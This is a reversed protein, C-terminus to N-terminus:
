RGTLPPLRPGNSTANAGIFWGTGANATRIVTPPWLRTYRPHCRHIRHARAARRPRPCAARRLSARDVRDMRAWGARSRPATWDLVGSRAPTRRSMASACGATASAPRPRPRLPLSTRRPPRRRKVLPRIRSRVTPARGLPPSDAQLRKGAHISPREERRERGPGNGPLRQVLRPVASASPYAADMLLWSDKETLSGAAAPVCGTPCEAALEPWAAVRSRHPGARRHAVVTASVISSPTLEPATHRGIEVEDPAGANADREERAANVRGPGLM